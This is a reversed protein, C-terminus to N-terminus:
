ISIMYQGRYPQIRQQEQRPFGQKHVNLKGEETKIDLAQDVSHEFHQDFSCM